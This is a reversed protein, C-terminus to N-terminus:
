FLNGLRGSGTRPTGLCLCAPQARCQRQSFSFAKTGYPHWASASKTTFHLHNRKKLVSNSSRSTPRHISAACFRGLVTTSVGAITVACRCLHLCKQVRAALEPDGPAPYRVQYLERPFGGFDHIAKPPTSVTIAADEIYWHASVSLIGKPQTAGIAAWRQTYPNVLLANLQTRRCRWHDERRLRLSSLSAQM